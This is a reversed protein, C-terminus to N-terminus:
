LSKNQIQIIRIFTEIFQSQKNQLEQNINNAINVAYNESNGQKLIKLINNNNNINDLLIQVKDLDNVIADFNKIHNNTKDKGTNNTKTIELLAKLKDLNKQIKKTKKQAVLNDTKSNSAITSIKKEVKTIAKDIKKNLKKIINELPIHNLSEDFVPLQISNIDFIIKNAKSILNQKNLKLLMDFNEIKKSQDNEIKKSKSLELDITNFASLKKELKYFSLSAKEIEKLSKQDRIQKPFLIQNYRMKKLLNGIEFFNRDNNNKLYGNCINKLETLKKNYEEGYNKISNEVRTANRMM